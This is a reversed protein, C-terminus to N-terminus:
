FVSSERKTYFNTGKFMWCPSFLSQVRIQSCEENMMKKILSFSSVVVVSLGKPARLGAAVAHVMKQAVQVLVDLDSMSILPEFARVAADSQTRLHTPLVTVTFYWVRAVHTTGKAHVTLFLRRKWFSRFFDQQKWIFNIKVFQWLEGSRM